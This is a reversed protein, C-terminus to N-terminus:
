LSYMICLKSNQYLFEDIEGSMFKSRGSESMVTLFRKRINLFGTTM